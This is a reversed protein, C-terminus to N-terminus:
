QQKALLLKHFSSGMSPEKSLEAPQTALEDMLAAAPLDKKQDQLV